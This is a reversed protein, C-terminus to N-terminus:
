MIYVLPFRDAHSRLQNLVTSLDALCYILYLWKLDIIIDVDVIHKHTHTSHVYEYRVINLTTSVFVYILLSKRTRIHSKENTLM